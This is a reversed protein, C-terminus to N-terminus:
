NSKEELKYGIVGLPIENGDKDKHRYDKLYPEAKEFAENIKGLYKRTYPISSAKQLILKQYSDVSNYFIGETTYVCVWGNEGGIRAKESGLLAIARKGGLGVGVSDKAAHPMAPAVWVSPMTFQTSQIESPLPCPFDNKAAFATSALMLLGLALIKKLM